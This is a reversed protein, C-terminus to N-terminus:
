FLGTLDGVRESFALTHTHRQDVVGHHEMGDVQMAMKELHHISSGFAVFWTLMRDVDQGTSLHAEVDSGFGSVPGKM